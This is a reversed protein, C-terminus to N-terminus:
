LQAAGFDMRRTSAESSYKMTAFYIITFNCGKM